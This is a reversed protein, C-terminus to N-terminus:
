MPHVDRLIGYCRLCAVMTQPRSQACGDRVARASLKFILPKPPRNSQKVALSIGPLM